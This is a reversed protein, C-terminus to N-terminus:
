VMLILLLVMWLVMRGRIVLFSPARYRGGLSTLIANGLDFYLQLVPGALLAAIKIYDIILCWLASLVRAVVILVQLVVIRVATSCGALIVHLLEVLRLLILWILVHVMLLLVIIVLLVQVLSLVIEFLGGLLEALLLLICCTCSATQMAGLLLQRVLLVDVHAGRLLLLVMASTRLGVRMAHIVLLLHLRRLRTVTLLRRAPSASCGAFVNVILRRLRRIRVFLRTLVRACAQLLWLSLVVCRLRLLLLLLLLLDISVLETLEHALHRLPGILRLHLYFCEIIVNCNAHDQKSVRHSKYITWSDM